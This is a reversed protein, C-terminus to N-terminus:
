ASLMSSEILFISRNMADCPKLHHRRIAFPVGILPVTTQEWIFVSLLFSCSHPVNGLSSMDYFFVYFM